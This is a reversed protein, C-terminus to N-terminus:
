RLVESKRSAIWIVAFSFGLIGSVMAWFPAVIAGLFGGVLTGALSPVFARKLGTKRLVFLYAVSVSFAGITAGYLFGWGLVSFEWNLERTTRWLSIPFIIAGCFAGGVIGILVALLFNAANKLM